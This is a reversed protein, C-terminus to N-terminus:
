HLLGGELLVATISNFWHSPPPHEYVWPRKDSLLRLIAVQTRVRKSRNRLRSNYNNCWASVVKRQQNTLHYTLPRITAPKNTKPPPNKLSKM